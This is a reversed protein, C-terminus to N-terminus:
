EDDYLEDRTWPVIPRGPRSDYYEFLERKAAERDPIIMSPPVIYAVTRGHSTVEVMEGQDVKRLVASFHRNAETATVTNEIPKDLQKM